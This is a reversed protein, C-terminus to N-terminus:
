TDELLLAEHVVHADALALVRARQGHHQAIAAAALGDDVPQAAHRGGAAPHVHAVVADLGHAGAHPDRDEARAAAHHGVTLAALLLDAALEEALDPSSAM